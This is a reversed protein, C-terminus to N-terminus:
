LKPDTFSEVSSEGAALLFLGTVIPLNVYTFHPSTTTYETNKAKIKDTRVGRGGGFSTTVM